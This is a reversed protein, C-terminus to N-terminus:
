TNIEHLELEYFKFLSESIVPIWEIKLWYAM